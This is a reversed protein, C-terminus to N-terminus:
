ADELTKIRAELADIKASAEQLAAALYVSLKEYSMGYTTGLEENLTKTDRGNDHM